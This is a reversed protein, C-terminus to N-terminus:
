YFRDLICEYNNHYSTHSICFSHRRDSESVHRLQHETCGNQLTQITTDFCKDALSYTSALDLHGALIQELSLDDNTGHEQGDHKHKQVGLSEEQM